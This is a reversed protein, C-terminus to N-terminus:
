TAPNLWTHGYKALLEDAKVPGNSGPAYNPFELARTKQWASLIPNIIQWAADVQDSRMFLTADGELVDYILHEYAEPTNATLEKEFDFEMNVQSLQMLQGPVKAQFQLHIDM